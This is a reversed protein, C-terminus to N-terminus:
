APDRRDAERQRLPTAAGATGGGYSCCRFGKKKLYIVFEASDPWPGEDAQRCQLRTGASECREPTREGKM